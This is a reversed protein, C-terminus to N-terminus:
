DSSTHLQVHEMEGVSKQLTYKSVQWAKLMEKLGGIEKDKVEIAFQYKGKEEELVCDENM